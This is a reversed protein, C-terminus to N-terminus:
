EDNAGFLIPKITLPFGAIRFKTKKGDLVYWQEFGSFHPTGSQITERLKTLFANVVELPIDAFRQSESESVCIIAVPFLGEAFDKGAIDYTGPEFDVVAPKVGHQLVVFVQGDTLTLVASDFVTALVWIQSTGGTIINVMPGQTLGMGNTGNPKM